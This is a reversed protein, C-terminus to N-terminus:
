TVFSKKSFSILTLCFNYGGGLPVLRSILSSSTLCMDLGFNKYMPKGFETEFIANGFTHPRWMFSM